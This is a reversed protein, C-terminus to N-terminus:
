FGEESLIEDMKGQIEEKGGMNHAAKQEGFTVRAIPCTSQMAETKQVM